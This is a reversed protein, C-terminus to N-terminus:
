MARHPWRISRFVAGTALGGIGGLFAFLPAAVIVCIIGEILILFTGLVFLVNAAAGIKFYYFWSRRESLCGRDTAV